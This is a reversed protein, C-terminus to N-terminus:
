YHTINYVAQYRYQHKATNTYNYSSNLVASSVEPHTILSRMAGVVEECLSAAAYLSGAYCQIAFTSHRIHETESGATRQLILYREPKTEPEELLVPIELAAALHARLVTEIM